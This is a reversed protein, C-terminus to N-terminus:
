YEIGLEDLLPAKMTWQKVQNREAFLAEAALYHQTLTALGCHNVQMFHQKAQEGYGIRVSNRFHKVGHCAPCLAKIAVLTQTRRPLDFDWVEHAVLQEPKAGCIECRYGAAAYTAHRLQDWDSKPLTISFDKGWAGQPLLDITLKLPEM